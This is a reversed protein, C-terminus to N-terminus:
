HQSFSTEFLTVKSNLTEKQLNQPAQNEMDPQTQSLGVVMFADNAQASIPAFCVGLIFALLSFPGQNTFIEQGKQACCIM